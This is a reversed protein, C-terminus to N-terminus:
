DDNRKEARFIKKYVEIYNSAMIEVSFNNEVHKRCRQRMKQYNNEEMNYIKKVAKAMATINSPRVVLGTEGEKIIERVAGRDFAVVPTGCAMAEIMVLGFPEDWQLPFILLKAEGLFINREKSGLIGLYADGVNLNKKVEEFYEVNNIPGALKITKNVLHSAEVAEIVGKYQAVRGMWVINEKPSLNFDFLRLDTGNYVNDFFKIDPHVKRHAYSISIFVIKQIDKKLAKKIDDIFTIDRNVHVTLITRLGMEVSSIVAQANNHNHHVIDYGEKKINELAKVYSQNELIKEEKTLRARNKSLISQNVIAILNKVKKSDASAFLNFDVKGSLGLALNANFTAMGGIGAPDTPHLISAMLAIKM